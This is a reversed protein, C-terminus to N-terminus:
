KSFLKKTRKVKAKAENMESAIYNRINDGNKWILYASTGVGLLITLNRIGNGLDNFPNFSPMTINPLGFVNSEYDYVGSNRGTKLGLFVQIPDSTFLPEEGNQIDERNVGSDYVEITITDGVQPRFNPDLALRVTGSCGKLIETEVPKVDLLQGSESRAAVVADWCILNGVGTWYQWLPKEMNVEVDLGIPVRDPPLGSSPYRGVIKVAEVSATFVDSLGGQACEPCSLSRDGLFGINNSQFM